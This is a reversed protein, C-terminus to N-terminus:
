FMSAKLVDPWWIKCYNECDKSFAGQQVFEQFM